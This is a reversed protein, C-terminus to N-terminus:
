YTNAKTKEVRLLYRDEGIREIRRDSGRSAAKRVGSPTLNLLKVAQQVDCEVYDYKNGDPDILIMERAVRAKMKSIESRNIPFDSLTSLSDHFTKCDAESWSDSRSFDLKCETCRRKLELGFVKILMSLACVGTAAILEDQGTVIEFCAINHSTGETTVVMSEGQRIVITALAINGGNWLQIFERIPMADVDDAVALWQRIMKLALNTVQILRTPSSELFPYLKRKRTTM